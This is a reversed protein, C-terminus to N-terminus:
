MKRFMPHFCLIYLRTCKNHYEVPNLVPIIQNQRHVSGDSFELQRVTPADFLDM